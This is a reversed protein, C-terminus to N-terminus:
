LLIARDLKAMTTSATRTAPGVASVVAYTWGDAEEARMPLIPPPELKEAATAGRILSKRYADDIDEGAKDDPPIVMPSETGLARRDGNLFNRPIEAADEDDVLRIPM